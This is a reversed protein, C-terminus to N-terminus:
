ASTMNLRPELDYVFYSNLILRIFVFISLDSSKPPQQKGREEKSIISVRVYTIMADGLKRMYKDHKVCDKIEYKM